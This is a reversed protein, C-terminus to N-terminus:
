IGSKDKPPISRIKIIATDNTNKTRMIMWADGRTVDVRTMIVMRFPRKIGEDKLAETVM